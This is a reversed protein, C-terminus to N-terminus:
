YHLAPKATAVLGGMPFRGRQGANGCEEVVWPNNLECDRFGVGTVSVSPRALNETGTGAVVVHAPRFGFPSDQPLM